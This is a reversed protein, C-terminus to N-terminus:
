CNSPAFILVLTVSLIRWRETKGRWEWNSVLGSLRGLSEQDFGLVKGVERAASKGRYAKLNATM